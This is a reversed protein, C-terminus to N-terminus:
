SSGPGPLSVQGDPPAPEAMVAQLHAQAEALSAAVGLDQRLFDLMPERREIAQDTIPDEGRRYAGVSILDEQESYRAILRRFQRAREVQDASVVSPMTRSLSAPVDIAPYLGSDAISRSLVIHGDLIARAADVVPDQLDDEETLVTFVATVSGSGYSGAREVFQPLLAYVSPPYGKATPPEGAGLGIERQAHAVRTLSDMLLLVRKGSRAYAEATRTALRAARLRFIAPEDAPAAIVTSRELGNGLSHEVFDRVERGREGILAVVVVDAQTNRALMGLLASKGVGSGAFLGIRQGVGLTLLANISRVGCDLPESVAGRELPNIRAQTVANVRALAPGGDLPHGLGDVIRGPLADPDPLLDLDAARVPAGARLGALDALPMASTLGNSFGVVEAAAWREGLRFECMEGIGLDLGSLHLVSGTVRSVRGYRRLRHLTPVGAALGHCLRRSREPAPM